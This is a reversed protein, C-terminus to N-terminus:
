VSPLLCLHFLRGPIARLIHLSQSNLAFTIVLFVQILYLLGSSIFILSFTWIPTFKLSLGEM